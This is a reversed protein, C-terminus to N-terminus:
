LDENSASPERSDSIPFQWLDLTKLSFEAHFPAVDLGLHFHWENWWIVLHHTGSHSSM